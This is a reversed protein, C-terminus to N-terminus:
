AAKMLAVMNYYPDVNIGNEPSSAWYNTYLGAVNQAIRVEYPNQKNTFVLGKQMIIGICGANPDQYYVQGTHTATSSGETESFGIESGLKDYVPYLRRTYAADAFPVLGGFDETEVVPIPLAIDEPNYAGARVKVAIKNKIGPRLLLVYDSEDVVTEFGGANFAGTQSSITMRTMQDKIALIFDELDETSADAATPDTVELLQTEKLQYATSNLAANIAQKTNEYEQVTYGNELGALIGAIFQGMGNESIFVQKVQFDQITVLSQYDFNIGFFRESTTPKRVVYQDVSDGNQVGRYKPTIPKLNGIAIRQLFGGNPQDYSEIISSLPNKARPIDIKNLAVRLSIEFFENIAPLDNIRLAEFGKETFLDSTGKSTHSAFTPSSARCLNWAEINTMKPLQALTPM